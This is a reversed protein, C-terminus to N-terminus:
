LHVRGGGFVFEDGPTDEYHYDYQAADEQCFAKVKKKNCKAM